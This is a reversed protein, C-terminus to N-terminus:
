GTKYGLATGAAEDDADFVGDVGIDVGAFACVGATGAAGAGAELVVLVFAGAVGEGAGEAGAVSPALKLSGEARVSPECRSSAIAFISLM